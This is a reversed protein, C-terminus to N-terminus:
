MGRQGPMELTKVRPFVLLPPPFFELKVAIAFFVELHMWVLLLFPMLFDPTKVFITRVQSSTPSM